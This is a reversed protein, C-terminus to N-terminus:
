VPSLLHRRRRFTVLPGPPSGRAKENRSGPLPAGAAATEQALRAIRQSPHCVHGRLTRRPQGYKKESSM